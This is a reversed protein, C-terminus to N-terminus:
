RTVAISVSAPSALCQFPDQSQTVVVANNQGNQPSFNTISFGAATWASRAEAFTRGILSPVVKSPDVCTRVEVTAVDDIPGAPDIDPSNASLANTYTGPAEFPDSQYYCLWRDGPDISAPVPPCGSMTPNESDAISVGTATLGGTNEVRLRYWVFPDVTDNGYLEISGTGDFLPTDYVDVRKTVLFEAPAAIVKVVATAQM